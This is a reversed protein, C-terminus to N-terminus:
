KTHAADSAAPKPAALPPAAQPLSPQPKGNLFADIDYPNNFYKNQAELWQPIQSPQINNSKFYDLTAQSVSGTRVEDVVRKLFSQARQKEAPSRFDAKKGVTAADTNADQTRWNGAVQDLLQTLFENRQQPTASQGAASTLWDMFFNTYEAQASKVRETTETKDFKSGDSLFGPKGLTAMGRKFNPDAFANAKKTAKDKAQEEMQDRLRVQENLRVFDDRNIEGARSMNVLTKTTIYDPSSKDDVGFIDANTSTVVKEDSQFTNNTMAQQFHILSAAASAGQQGLKGLAAMEGKLDIRTPNTSNVLKAVVTNTLNDVATDTAEKREQEAAVHDSQIEAHVDHTVDQIEKQAWPRADLTQNGAKVNKLIDLVSTDKRQLALDGIARVVMQNALTPDVGMAIARDNITNIAAAIADHSTNMELEHKANTFVEGYHNDGVQKVLRQGAQAVFARRSDSAYQDAMSGFGNEFHLDRNDEGINDQVWQKRFDQVFKDYQAVDTTDSLNKEVAAQLDSSFQGATVRGFQEKAGLQFWPSQDATIDGRKIAERYSKGSEFLQRAKQEGEAKQTESQQKALVDSFQSVEPAVSSLAEALQGLKRGGDTHVFDDVPSAVPTIRARPVGRDVPTRTAM